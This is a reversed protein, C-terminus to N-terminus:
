KELLRAFFDPAPAAKVIERDPLTIKIERSHLAFGDLGEIERGYMFDGAVPCGMHSLHVRIQHTRGTELRLGLLSRTPGKELTEYHTVARQGNVTDVARKIGYGEARGIPLDIVGSPPEPRGDCVALYRRTIDGNHLANELLNASYKTKAVCMLGGTGRDLRNIAHFTQEEGRKQYLGALYNALTGEPHGPSPHVAMGCPKNIILLLEDEYVIDLPGEQPTVRESLGRRGTMLSIVQGPRPKVNVFVPRGDLLIGGEIWKLQRLLSASVGMRRRALGGLTSGEDAPTTIYEIRGNM